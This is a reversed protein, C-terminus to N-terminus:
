LQFFLPNKVMNKYYFRLCDETARLVHFASATPMEFAICKGAEKFDFRAMDPLHEFTDPAFLYSVDNILKDLDLRKPTPTYAGVGEIEAELTSRIENIANSLQTAQSPSLTADKDTEKLEKILADLKKHALRKTVPLGLEELYDFLEDINFLVWADEHIKYRDTADLLFRLCTGFWYFGFLSQYKM